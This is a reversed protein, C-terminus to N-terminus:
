VRTCAVIRQTGTASTGSRRVGRTDHGLTSAQWRERSLESMSSRGSQKSIRFGADREHGLFIGVLAGFEGTVDDLTEADSIIWAHGYRGHTAVLAYRGAAFKRGAAQGARTVDNPPVRM